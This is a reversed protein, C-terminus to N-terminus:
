TKEREALEVNVFNEMKVKRKEKSYLKMAEEEMKGTLKKEDGNEKLGFMDQEDM